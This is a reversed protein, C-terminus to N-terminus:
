QTNSTDLMNEQGETVKMLQIYEEESMLCHESDSKLHMEKCSECLFIANCLCYLCAKANCYSCKIETEM